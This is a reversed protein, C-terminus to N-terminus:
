SVVEKILKDWTELYRDISFYNRATERAKQGMIKVTEPNRQLYIIYDVLEKPNNSLFGSVGNEIYEAENHFCTSVPVLGCFMAEARGRPNPAYRTPNFYISYQRLKRRYDGFSNSNFIGDIQIHKKVERYIDCGYYREHHSCGQAVTPSCNVPINKQYNTLPWEAIEMGHLIFKANIGSSKFIDEAFKSNVVMVNDRVIRKIKEIQRKDETCGHMLFIKPKKIHIFETVHPFLVFHDGCLILIDYQNINVTALPRVGKPFPRIRSNWRKKSTLMSIKYGLRVLKCLEYQHAFHWVHTLIRVM